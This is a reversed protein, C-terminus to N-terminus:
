RVHVVDGASVAVRGTPTAVVLGGDGDVSVATGELVQGSPLHVRVQEGVTACCRNYEGLLGERPDGGSTTWTRYRGGLADLLHVLLMTRDIRAMGALHLSTATEVPLEQRATTVNLGVGLVAAPGTPTEVREALLGALKLGDHMVDNPWKLACPPGGAALVGDLVAVGTLLPLWPWARDPVGAPRVLVSFTLAARAPTEWSRDLRGRGATQHEAVLVTGEPAGARARAALLANTSPAEELVEVDV